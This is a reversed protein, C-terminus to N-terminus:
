SRKCSSRLQLVETKAGEKAAIRAESTAVANRALTEFEATLEVQRQAALTRYFAIRVDTLVRQQQASVEWLQSQVEQDLVRENLCLKEATVNDQEVFAVHQDTGRDALQTANYGVTSKPKRGVQDRYGDGQSRFREGASDLTTRLLWHSSAPWHGAKPPPPRNPPQAPTSKRKSTPSM